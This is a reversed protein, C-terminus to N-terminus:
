CSGIVALTAAIEQPMQLPVRHEIEVIDLVAGIGVGIEHQDFAALDGLRLRCGFARGIVLFAQQAQQAEGPDAAVSRRRAPLPRATIRRLSPDPSPQHNGRM